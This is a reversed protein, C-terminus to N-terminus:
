DPHFDEWGADHSANVSMHTPSEHIVTLAKELPYLTVVDLSALKSHDTLAINKLADKLEDSIKVFSAGAEDLPNFIRTV